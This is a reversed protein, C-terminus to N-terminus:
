GGSGTTVVGGGRVGSYVGRGRQLGVERSTVSDLGSTPEDLFLITPDAVLEMGINVRKRQGGSIKKAASQSGIVSDRIKSLGLLDEIDGVQSASTSQYHLM